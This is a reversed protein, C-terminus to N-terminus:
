PISSPRDDKDSDTNLAFSFEGVVMAAVVVVDDLITDLDM